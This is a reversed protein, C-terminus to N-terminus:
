DSFRFELSGPKSTFRNEDIPFIPFPFYSLNSEVVKEVSSKDTVSGEDLAEIQIDKTSDVLPLNLIFSSLLPDPAANSSAAAFSSGGLLAQLNGEEYYGKRLFPFTSHSGSSGKHFRRRRQFSNHFSIKFFSGHQMTIHGVLDMGVRSTCLPCVGNKAEVPHEDDIHCCLGVIDFDESCFPCPFEARLEDDGGDIEDFGLYLDHRSQLASQQRKVSFRAWSDAEM